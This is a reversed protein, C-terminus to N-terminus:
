ILSCYMIIAVVVEVLFFASKCCFLSAASSCAYKVKKKGNYKHDLKKEGGGNGGGTTNWMCTKCSHGHLPVRYHFVCGTHSSGLLLPVRPLNLVGGWGSSRKLDNQEAQLQKEKIFFIRLARCMIELQSSWLIQGWCSSEWCPQSFNNNLGLSPLCLALKLLSLERLGAKCAEPLLHM